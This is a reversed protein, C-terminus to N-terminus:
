FFLAGISFDIQSGDVKSPTNNITYEIDTYRISWTYASPGSTSSRYNYEIHPGTAHDFYITADCVNDIDCSLEVARHHSLGIGIGHQEWTKYLTGEYTYKDFKAEGNEANTSTWHYGIAGRVFISEQIQADIGGEFFLGDGSSLTQDSGNEYEITLLDEGGFSIGAGIYPAIVPRESEAQAIIPLLLLPLTYLKLM